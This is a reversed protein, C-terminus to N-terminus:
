EIVQTLTFSYGPISCTMTDGQFSATYATLYFPFGTDITLLSEDADWSWFRPGTTSWNEIFYTGDPLFEYFTTGLEDVWRGEVPSGIVPSFETPSCGGLTVMGSVLFALVVAKRFMLM